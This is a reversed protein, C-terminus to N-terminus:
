GKTLSALVFYDFTRALPAFKPSNRKWASPHILALPKLAEAAPLLLPTAKPFASTGVISTIEIHSGKIIKVL